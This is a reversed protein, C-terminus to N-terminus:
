RQRREKGAVEFELELDDLVFYQAAADNSVQVTFWAGRLRQRFTKTRRDLGVQVQATQFPTGETVDYATPGANLSVNAQWRGPSAQDGDFLEGFQFTTGVLKSADPSPHFPGLTVYATIGVGTGNDNDTRSNDQWQLLKGDRTGLIIKRDLPGDGDFIFSSIPGFSDPYQMPWYTGGTREDYWIHTSEGTSRSTVFIFCGRRDRDWVCQIVTSSRDIGAFFQNYKDDALSKPASKADWQYFGGTGVFYILGNPARCWADKGLVGIQDSVNDIAGDAAPDGTMVWLNHDGGIGMLDDSFPMLATIPEGIQGNQAANGAFAAAPDDQSYDFDTPVGVRSCVFNQPFGNPANALVLRGRYICALTYQGLTTATETGATSAWTSVTNSPIDLVKMDSSGDVFYVRQFIAAASPLVVNDANLAGSGGTALTGQTTLDGTYIGGGSVAVIKTIRPSGVATSQETEYVGGIMAPTDSTTAWISGFAIGQHTTDQGTITQTFHIVASGGTPETDGSWVTVINGEVQIGISTDGLGTTSTGLLTTGQYLKWSTGITNWVTIINSQDGSPNATNVRVSLFFSPFPGAAVSVYSYVRFNDASTRSVTSVAASSGNNAPQFGSGGGSLILVGGSVSMPTSGTWSGTRTGGVRALYTGIASTNTNSTGVTWTADQSELTGSLLISPDFHYHPTILPDTYSGGSSLAQTSTVQTLLQVNQTGDGIPTAWTPETGSRQSVRLRGFRDYPVVNLADWCTPLGEGSEVGPQQSRALARNVGGIPPPVKVTRIPM